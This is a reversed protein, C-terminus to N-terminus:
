VENLWEDSSYFYKLFVKVPKPENESGLWGALDVKNLGIEYSIIDIFRDFSIWELWRGGNRAEYMTDKIFKDISIDGSTWGEIIRHPDCKRCWKNEDFKEDCYSCKGYNEDM